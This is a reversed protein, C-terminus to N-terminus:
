TRGSEPVRSCGQNHLLLHRPGRGTYGPGWFRAGADGDEMRSSRANEPLAELAGAALSNLERGREIMADFVAGRSQGEHAEAAAASAPNRTL